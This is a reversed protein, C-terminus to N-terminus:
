SVDLDVPERYHIFMAELGFSKRLLQVRTLLQRMLHVTMIKAKAHEVFGGGEEQSFRKRWASDWERAIEDQSRGQYRLM